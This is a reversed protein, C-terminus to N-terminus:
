AEEHFQLSMGSILKTTVVYHNEGLHGLVAHEWTDLVPNRFAKTSTWIWVIFYHELIIELLDNILIFIIKLIQEQLSCPFLQCM